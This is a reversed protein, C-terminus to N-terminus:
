GKQPENQQTDSRPLVSRMNKFSNSCKDYVVFSNKHFKIRDSDFFYKFYIVFNEVTHNQFLINSNVM